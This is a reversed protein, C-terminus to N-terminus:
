LVNLEVRPNIKDVIVNEDFVPILYKYSDNVIWNAKQMADALNQFMNMYDWEGHDPPYYTFKVKLPYTKGVLMRAWATRRDADLLQIHIDKFNQFAKDSKAIITRKGKLPDHLHKIQKSNKSSYLRGPITIM